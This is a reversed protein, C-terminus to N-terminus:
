HGATSFKTLEALEVMDLYSKPVRRGDRLSGWVSFYGPPSSGQLHSPVRQEVSPGGPGCVNEQIVIDELPFDSETPLTPCCRAFWFEKFGDSISGTQVYRYTKWPSFARKAKSLGNWEYVDPNKYMDSLEAWWEASRM